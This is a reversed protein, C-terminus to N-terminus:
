KHLYKGFLEFLRKERYEFIKRVKKNIFLKEAVLGIFGFPAAYNVIDMMEVGGNIEKIFHQHHWFRYPGMKQNDIFYEGVRVQTIETVWTVPINLIPRVKYTIIMGAYMKQSENKTTIEFGMSEPTITKLNQPGSLFDWAAKLSIPLKQNVILTNL